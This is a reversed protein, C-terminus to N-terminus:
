ERSDAAQATALAQVLRHLFEQGEYFQKVGLREDKGHARVDDMDVFIGSVGYARIGAKRFYRSDSAGTSMTPVAPVGPWLEATIREVARMLEPDLPSAPAATDPETETVTIQPDAIVEVLTRHVEDTNHGPLIRCNITARATQPLANDAHGGELRTAICTTRLLANYAPIAALRAVADADAPSQLVARM